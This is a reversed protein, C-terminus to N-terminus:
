PSYNAFGPLYSAGPSGPEISSWTNNRGRPRRPCRNRAKEAQGYGLTKVSPRSSLFSGLGTLSSLVTKQECFGILNSAGKTGAHSETKYPYWFGANFRQAIRLLFIGFPYQRLAADSDTEKRM